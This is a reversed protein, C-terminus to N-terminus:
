VINDAYASPWLIHMVENFDRGILDPINGFVPLATPNVERLRFDADVLYVGLPARNLLTQFQATSQRLADEAQKRETIDLLMNIGGTLRGTADFLPTPYPELWRREGDPREAIAQAGRLPRNEKLAIAMPGEEVPLPTGDPRYLKWSVCWRDEGLEPTRGALAVAAPNFHTLRGEADITYVAVPLADVMERFRRENEQLAAEARKRETVDQFALLITAEGDRPIRRADFLVVRRGLAPFDREVELLEFDTNNALVATLSAWLGSTNWDDDGLTRLPVGQTTERSADFLSYFARNASQVRLESDLVVLPNSVTNLITKTYEREYVAQELSARFATVNTFTLVAGAIQGAARAYPAIRLLFRRDGSQVDRRVPAEDAIVHACLKELDKVDAFAAVASPLRGIDSAALGLTDTAARNFRVLTCDRGVVIIPLDVTDLIGVVDASLPDAGVRDGRAEGADGSSV